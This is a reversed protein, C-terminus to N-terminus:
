NLKSHIFTVMGFPQTSSIVYGIESQILIGDIEQYQCRIHIFVSLLFMESVQIIKEYAIDSEYVKEEIMKRDCNSYLTSIHLFAQFILLLILTLGNLIPELLRWKLYDMELQIKRISRWTLNFEDYLLWISPIPKLPDFNSKMESCKSSFQHQKITYM